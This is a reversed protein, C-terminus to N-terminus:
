RKPAGAGRKNSTTIGRKNSTTIGHGETDEDTDDIRANRTSFPSGHGETDDSAAPDTTPDKTM